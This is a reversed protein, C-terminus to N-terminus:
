KMFSIEYRKRCLRHLRGKIGDADPGVRASCGGGGGDADGTGDGAAISGRGGQTMARALTRVLIGVMLTLKM